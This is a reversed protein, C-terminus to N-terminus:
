RRTARAAGAPSPRPRAGPRPVQVSVTLDLGAFAAYERAAREILRQVSASLPRALRVDLSATGTTRKWTGVRVGGIVVSSDLAQMPPIDGAVLRRHRYAVLYEDYAPLLWARPTPSPQAPGTAAALAMYREPVHAGAEADVWEVESGLAAAALRADAITLGSWWAFDHVTAPAHGALYRRLLTPLAEDRPLARGSPARRALLAYTSQSGRRPGSCLIGDLEEHMVLYALRQGSAPIGGRALAAALETRTLATTRELARTILRRAKQRTAADLGLQHYRTANGQHVRPSTLALMWRIDAPAVFHWTPRLIHTRLIRGEDAAREVDAASTAQARQGIAWLALAYEQSQVACLHSVIDAPDVAVRPVLRHAALRRALISSSPRPPVGWEVM